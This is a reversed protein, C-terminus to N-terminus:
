PADEEHLGKGDAEEDEADLGSYEDGLAPPNVRVLAPCAARLQARILRGFARRKNAASGDSTALAWRARNVDTRIQEMVDAENSYDVKVEHTQVEPLDETLQEKPRAVCMAALLTKLRGLSSGTPPGMRGDAENWSGFLDKFHDIGATPCGPLLAMQGALDNWTDYVPTGSLLFAVRYHLSSVARNIQSGPNRVLQSEDIILVSVNSDLTDYLASAM